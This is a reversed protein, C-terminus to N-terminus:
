PVCVPDPEHESVWDDTSNTDIIGGTGARMITKNQGAHITWEPYPDGSGGKEWAVFDIVDTAKALTIYDGTNSLDLRGYELSPQCGFRAQFATANRSLLFIDMPAITINNEPFAWTEHNDSISWGTM